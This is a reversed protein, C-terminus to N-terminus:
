YEKRCNYGIRNSEFKRDTGTEERSMGREELLFLKEDRTDRKEDMEIRHQEADELFQLVREMDRYQDEQIMPKVKRRASLFVNDITGESFEMEESESVSSNRCNIVMDRVSEDAAM